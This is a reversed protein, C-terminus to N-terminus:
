ANEFGTLVKGTDDLFYWFKHTKAGNGLKQCFEFKEMRRSLRAVTCRIGNVTYYDSWHNELDIAPPPHAGGRVQVYNQGGAGFITLFQKSSTQLCIKNM